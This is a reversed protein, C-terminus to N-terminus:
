AATWEDLWFREGEEWKKLTLVDTAKGPAGVQRAEAVLRERVEPTTACIAVFGQWAALNRWKRLRREVDGSEAEVEVYAREDGRGIWIDPDAPAQAQPCVETTFDRLRAQHAFGCVLAAHGAQEPGGHEAMLKEWESAQATIGNATLLDRGKRTLVTVSLDGIPEVKVTQAELFGFQAETLRVFLRRISGAGPNIGERLAM